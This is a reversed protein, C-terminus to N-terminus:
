YEIISICWEEIIPLPFDDSGGDEQAAATRRDGHRMM